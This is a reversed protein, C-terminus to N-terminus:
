CEFNVGHCIIHERPIFTSENIWRFDLNKGALSHDYEWIRFGDGSSSSPSGSVLQGLDQDQGTLIIESTQAVPCERSLDRDFLSHISFDLLVDTLGRGRHYRVAM